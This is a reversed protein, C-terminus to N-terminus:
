EDQRKLERSSRELERREWEDLSDIGSRSIKELIADIKAVAARDPSVELRPLVKPTYPLPRAASNKRKPLAAAFAEAVKEFRPTLGYKRMLFYTLGASALMITLGLGDRQYVFDLAHIAFLAGAIWKVAPGTCFIKANPHLFAVGLFLCFHISGTGAIVYSPTLGFGVSVVTLLPPVALLALYLRTLFRRGMMQELQTGFIGLYLMDLLFWIGPVHNVAYTAWQWWSPWVLTDGMRGFRMGLWENVGSGGLATVILATVHIIVLLVPLRVPYGKFTFIPQNQPDYSSIYM